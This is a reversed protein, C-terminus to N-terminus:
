KGQYQKYAALQELYSRQSNYLGEGFENAVKGKPVPYQHIDPMHNEFEARMTEWTEQVHEGYVQLRPEVDRKINDLEERLADLEDRHGWVIGAQIRTLDGMLAARAAAVRGSLTEDYYHLVADEVISALTGPYVAELVDLPEPLL